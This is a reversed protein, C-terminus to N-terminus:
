KTPHFQINSLMRLVSYVLNYYNCYSCLLRKVIFLHTTNWVDMNNSVVRRRSQLCHCIPGRSASTTTNPGTANIFYIFYLCVLRAYM